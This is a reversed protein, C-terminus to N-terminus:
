ILRNMLEQPKPQRPRNSVSRRRPTNWRAAKELIVLQDLALPIQGSEPPQEPDVFDAPPPPPNHIGIAQFVSDTAAFADKAAQLSERVLKRRTSLTGKTRKSAVAEAHKDVNHQYAAQAAQEQQIAKALEPTTLRPIDKYWHRPMRGNTGQNRWVTQLTHFDWKLSPGVYHLSARREVRELDSLGHQIVELDYEEDDRHKEGRQVADSRAEQGQPDDLLLTMVPPLEPQGTLIEALNQLVALDYLANHDSDYEPLRDPGNWGTLILSINNAQELAKDWAQQANETRATQVAKDALQDLLAATAPTNLLIHFEQPLNKTAPNEAQCYHLLTDEDFQIPPQPPPAQNFKRTAKLQANAWNNLDHHYGDALERLRKVPIPATKPRAPPKRSHLVTGNLQNRRSQALVALGKEREQRAREMLRHSAKGTERRARALYRQEECVYELAISELRRRHPGYPHLFGALVLWETHADTRHLAGFHYRERLSTEADPNLLIEQAERQMQRVVTDYMKEAQQRAYELVDPANNRKAKEILSRQIQEVRESSARVATYPTEEMM